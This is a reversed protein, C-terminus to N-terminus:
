QTGRKRIAAAAEHLAMKDTSRALGDALTLCLRACEEREDAIPDRGIADLAATVHRLAQNGGQTVTPSDVDGQDALCMRAWGLRECAGSVRAEATALRARLADREKETDELSRGLIRVTDAITAVRLEADALSVLLRKGSRRDWLAGCTRCHPPDAAFDYDCHDCAPPGATQLRDRLALIVDPAAAMTWERPGSPGAEQEATKFLAAIREDMTPATM